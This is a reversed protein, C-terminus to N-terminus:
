HLVATKLPLSLTFVTGKDQKSSVKLEGGHEKVIDYSIALGLGTGEGEKKTTYFPDFIKTLAAPAIGCGNDSIYVLVKNDKLKTFVKIEGRTKMAQSANILLNTLVQNIKGVNIEVDPLEQLDLTLDAKATVQKKVMKHTSMICDNINFFQKKDGDVRSFVSMNQVIDTVRQLGEEMDSLLDAMDESVFHMDQELLLSQIDTQLKNKVTQDETNVTKEILSLLEEYLGCYKKLTFLNSTVFSVPNNVEHALGAALQGMSALKESQVLQQQAQKLHMNVRQMQENKAVIEATRQNVKQELNQNFAELETQYIKTQSAQEQLKDILSNFNESVESVEDNSVIELKTDEFNGSSIAKTVKATATSLSKLRGTLYSGLLFSFLGVLLMETAALVSLWQKVESLRAQLASIGIGVEVRAYNQGGEQVLAFADYIGDDVTNLGNDAIFTKGIASNNGAVAFLQGQMNIVRAYEIDPNNLVENVFADLAALDYSLVADKAMSATLRSTTDARKKLDEDVMSTMYHVASFVLAILLTGEIIATGFITKSRLSLSLM